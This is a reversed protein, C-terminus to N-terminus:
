RYLTFHGVFQQKDEDNANVVYWYDGTPLENGEYKGDWGKVNDLIAVVRGYRDYIKVELNPFYNSNDPDWVENMNDGDPTFFNPPDFTGTFDFPITITVMCGNGDVVRITVTTDMNLTFVNNAGTAQGEFYYQYDGFGGTAMATIENPGTKIAELVLPEYADITFDVSNSCGNEHYMYITHPGPALDGFTRTTNALSIDDVDLSYLLGPVVSSDAMELTVTSNPFIGECGYEPVATGTLDVGIIIPVIVNTACGESDRVFVVYTEGGILNEFFLADNRVFDADDSSNLSTEYYTELTVPDVFPTGGTITLQATGDMANICTEPTEVSSVELVAPEVINLVEKESCGNEDQILIEYTGPDLNEFVYQGPTDPNSFFENFNPSIAFQILGVGGATVELSITGDAQGNCSIPSAISEFEIVEPRLIPLPGVIDGCSVGSTVGIYYEGEPLGEFTGDGQAPRVVTAGADPSFPDLPDGLYLTFLYNGVGGAAFSEIRGDLESACSIDNILNPVLEVAEADVLSIGPSRVSSCINVGSVDKKRIDYQYFGPTGDILVWTDAMEIYPDSVDANHARYEYVFGAEPNEVSLRMQGQGGCGPAQVQVLRPIIPPPSEVYYPLTYGVCEFSSSVEIAYWGTSIYGGTSGTFTPSDQLGGSATVDNIDNSGLYILRYKYGAGLVGGSAGPLATSFDGSTPDYAELVANNGGPCVLEQPERIGALIPDIPELFLDFTAECGEVDRVSVRYNGSSLDEFVRDNGYSHVGVFNGSGLPTELALAYEYSAVDWGGSGTAEIQGTNDNCSVNGVEVATVALPGNPTRITTGTSSAACFPAGDSEIVVYFNGGPLNEITEPNNATNLSGTAIPTSATVDTSRYVNYTYNGTYDTVTINLAGDNTGYCQIPSAESISVEPLTPEVVTHMPLPYTCGDPDNDTIEFFYDGDAPLDIDVFTAGNVNVDAIPVVSTTSVTFNTTGVVEIRVREPDQCDLLSLVSLTPVVDLPPNITPLVFSAQCGNGDIAYITIDQPSGNDVIEFENSSQYNNFGTISYQYGTGVTGPNLPDVTVTITTSSYRNADTECTFNPAAATIAFDAPAFIEVMGSLDSCNRTTVAEVEYEGADLNAFSGSSNSALVARSNFDLLNYTIPGDVDTGFGLLVSLSGNNEGFCSIHQPVVNDIVPLTPAELEIGTVLFDCFGTGDNVVNDTVLVQYSGPGINTFIGADGDGVIPAGIDNGSGDQLQYTYDNSGGDAEVVITGDSAECTPMVDFGGSAYIFEFVEGTNSSSCGNADVVDVTYIGPTSVFFVAPSGIITEGNLTFRPTDVWGPVTATIEFQAANIDCQNVVTIVPDPLIPDSQVIQGIGFSVCGSIDRVYIEYNGAPRFATTASGFDDSTDGITATGDYDPATGVPVYAFEYPGGAGGSGQVTFQGDSNCNAPNEQLIDISPLNQDITIAAGATCNNNDLDTAVVQYNGPLDLYTNIFPTPVGNFTDTFIIEGTDSDIISIQINNGSFGTVTYTIEGNRDADCFRTSVADVDLPSPGTVPDIVEQYTCGTGQDLVEVTYSVGYLLGNFTHRTLGANPAEFPNQPVAVLRINFPGTGGVIEVTNTFGFESCVPLPVPDPVVDLTTQEVEVTDEDRCGLADVTVVTYIGTALGTFTENTSATPGLRELENGFQDQLIYTFDPTGDAVGTVQIGGELVGTLCTADIPALATNPPPTSDTPITVTNGNTECGRADRVIYPYTQGANLNSYTTQPTFPGGNFSITYPPVGVTADPVITVIGNNTQGCSAPTVIASAAISEAPALVLATSETVCGRNDTVRFVYTGPVNTNYIFDNSPMPVPAGFSVGNDTSVEYQKTGGSSIYGNNVVVRIGGDGGGCPIESAITTLARVQPNITVSVQDRCNNADVVEITYNGPALGSFSPTAQLSGGNIRYQYAPLGGTANVVVTAGVGPVYCYETAADLVIDPSSLATLTFDFTDTCGESDAVSLTYSGPASLNGFTANSTPGVETGNPYELTYRYSGWGGSANGVVRGLNNNACSMATVTGLLDIPTSPETITIAATDTCGTATDTVTITYTGPGSPPLVVQDTSQPASEPGSNINYTFTNGFGDVIFTGTGDTAGTCVRTDAGSRLRARISSIANPTYGATYSCGNIDTVRFQYSTATSLGIFTDSGGNNFAIPSVVEYNAIAFNSTVTLQVDATGAGCNVNAQAFAIATPPDINNITIPTLETRCGGDDRIIPTYDGPPLDTYLTQSTFNAPDDGSISFVYGSGSGGSFPGQFEISGGITGGSGDCIRDSIKVATGTIVGTTNVTVATPVDYICDFDGQQYRVQISGYTGAPVSLPTNTSWPNSPTARFSLNYGKADIVNFNIRAGGNTCTGDTGSVTVDPPTLEQVDASATITCGNSDTILFAYSGPATVTHTTSGTFPGSSPGAGNVIFTYPATGGSTRVTIDVSPIGCGFSNNVETSADLAVIGEGIIIPDGNIDMDQSPAPIGNIPDGKCQQTEVRVSYTGFGVASFTYNNSAIFSTFEQPTGNSDVLTYKFPGPVNNATVSISGTEGSCQADVFSVDISIDRQEIQIPEYLYECTNSTNQLRAKVTYTGPLLNDFIAGQYPGFGSGDNISYEYASSLNTIQIRGPVGCIFDRKVFTQPITSKKVNFYYYPGAGNVRVRFGAGLSASINSADINFNPSTSIGTWCSLTTNACANNVDFTCGAQPVFQEWQYSSYSGQLLVPRDDFDGCLSYTSISTGGNNCTITDDSNTIITAFLSTTMTGNALVVEESTVASGSAMKSIGSNEILEADMPADTPGKTSVLEFVLRYVRTNALTSTCVVSVSILLAAYLFHRPKRPLM